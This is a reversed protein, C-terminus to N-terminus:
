LGACVLLTSNPMRANIGTIMFDRMECLVKYHEHKTALTFLRRDIKWKFFDRFYTLRTAATDSSIRSLNTSKLDSKRVSELNLIRNSTSATLKKASITRLHSHTFSFSDVLRDLEELEFLKGQSIREQFDIGMLELLQCGFIIARSASTVTSTSLNRARLQTLVYLTIEFDPLGTITDVPLPFREGSSFVLNRIGFNEFHGM